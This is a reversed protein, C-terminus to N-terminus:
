GKGNCTWMIQTKCGVLYSGCLWGSMMMVGAGGSGDSQMSLARNGNTKEKKDRDIVVNRYGNLEGILRNM